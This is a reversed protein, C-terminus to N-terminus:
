EQQNYNVKIYGALGEKELLPYIRYDGEDKILFGNLLELQYFKQYVTAYGDMQKEIWAGKVNSVDYNSIVVGQKGVCIVDSGLKGNKDCTGKAEAGYVNSLVLLTSCIVGLRLCIAKNM